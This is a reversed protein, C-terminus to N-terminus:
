GPLSAPFFSWAAGSVGASRNGDAGWGGSASPRCSERGQGPTPSPGWPSNMSSEGSSSATAAHHSEIRIGGRVEGWKASSSFRPESLGLPGGPVACTPCSASHRWGPVFLGLTHNWKSSIGRADHCRGEGGGWTHRDGLVPARVLPPEAERPGPPPVAAQVCAGLAWGGARDPRPPPASAASSVLDLCSGGRQFQCVFLRGATGVIVILQRCYLYAFERPRFKLM